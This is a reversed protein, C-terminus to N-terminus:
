CAPTRRARLAAGAGHVVCSRGSTQRVPPHGGLTAVLERATELLEKALAQPEPLSEDWRPEPDTESLFSLGAQVRARRGSLEWAALAYAALQFRHGKLGEEPPRGSKYDVVQVVGGEGEVLLDITGKLFIAPSGSAGEDLRLLFPLERQVLGEGRRACDKAFRTQLFRSVKAVVETTGRAGPPLGEAWAQESLTVELTLPPTGWERLPVLELLRHVASGSARADEAPGASESVVRSEQREDAGLHGSRASSLGHLRSEVYCRPCRAFDQLHTVPLIVESAPPRQLRGELRALAREWGETPGGATVPGPTPSLPPQDWPLQLTAVQESCGQLAGELWRDWTAGGDRKPRAGSLVLLDRARTMAVYLLRKREAIQRRTAEQGLTEWRESTCRQGSIPDWPRLSLGHTRDYRIRGREPPSLRGGLDPVVVIPWELGKSQHVTLLVVARPDAADLTEAQAETPAADALAFLERAFSACDSRGAADRRAALMLLKDLNALSQEAYPTGALRVRLDTEAIVARLLPALGLRHAEPSLQLVLQRLLELRAREGSTLAQPELRGPELASLGLRGAGAESVRLLSADTLGVMPSRLVAALSLGDEPDAALALFSALDLVEQAGHFGRGRVVRHPVQERLLAQRYLEVARFSRFLIAVDRGRARRRGGDGTAVCEPGDEGLLLAMRRAVVRADQERIEGAKESWDTRLREVAPGADLAPRHATLRDGDRFDVEYDRAEAEPAMVGAFTTNFVELLEPSSRRNTQLFERRGGESLIRREALGFVSVDAGRFEYISQKRDGVICLFAPELPLAALAAQDMAERPAGDRREALLTVLELQLRNTDQFEDVLLARYRAQAARRVSPHDRLLDRARILLGTFDLAGQRELAEAHVRQLEGLLRRVTHEFPAARAAAALSLLSLPDDGALLRKKLRKFPPGPSRTGAPRRSRAEEEVAREGLDLAEQLAARTAPDWLAQPTLAPLLAEIGACTAALIGRGDSARIELLEGGLDRVAAAFRAGISEATEIGLSAADLGEERVRSLLTVLEAVLGTGSGQDGFGLEAVLEAVSSDGADLAALIVEEACGSVLEGAETEDLLVFDADVGSGAPARRLLQVCLSHFTGVEAGGVADRLLRWEAPTPFPRHLRAFSGLLVEEEASVDKGSALHDLRERLRRRMEGAAKDTFTLMCLEGPKLPPGAERAGALLHVALTVLSWTKGAGAGASLVLNQELALFHAGEAKARAGDTVWLAGQGDSGSM